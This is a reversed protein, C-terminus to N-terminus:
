RSLPALLTNQYHIYFDEIDLKQFYDLRPRLLLERWKQYRMMVCQRPAKQYPNPLNEYGNSFPIYFSKHSNNANEFVIKHDNMYDQIDQWSGGYNYTNLEPSSNIYFSLIPIKNQILLTQASDYDDVLELMRLQDRYQILGVINGSRQYLLM